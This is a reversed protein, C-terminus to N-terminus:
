SNYASLIVESIERRKGQSVPFAAEYWKGDKGAVRPMGVFLGEQGEVVKFGKVILSSGVALDVFAKLRSGEKELRFIRAVQIDTSDAM